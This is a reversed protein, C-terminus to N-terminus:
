GRLTGAVRSRGYGGVPRSRRGRVPAEGRTQRLKVAASRHLGVLYASLIYIPDLYAFSVFFATVAFGLYSIPLYTSTLYIFRQEPDGHLWDRPLRRRLRVCSGIGGFVLASWLILGPLGMEAGAQIFSNHPAAWRIGADGIQQNRARESITGEARGFNNIGLGFVPHMWMYHLGRKAIAKRGDKATWNYDQTPQLLTSMQTWYGQPAGLALVIGVVGVFAVRKPAPIEKLVVLIALGVIVLGVLAGRSGSRAIAWGTGALILGTIVKGRWRSTQFALATLPLGTILVCGLDNADYTDLHSLRAVGDGTVYLRFVFVAMWVLIGSSIVYALVFMSLDAAWRIVAMLLLAYILVKIYDTLIFMASGGLSIGFAASLCAVVLLAFSVRAPWQSFLNANAVSKPTIAAYGAAFLFLLAAPRLFGLGLTEHVRSLTVVTLLFLAIRLPDRALPLHAPVGPPVANAPRQRAITRAIRTM